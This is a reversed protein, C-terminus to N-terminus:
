TRISAGAGRERPPVPSDISEPGSCARAHSGRRGRDPRSWRTSTTSASRGACARARRRRRGRYGYFDEDVDLVYAEVTREHRLVDPEIGRLGGRAAAPRRARFARRLRRRRAAGHLARSAINATPFGLERGRRDGHVVVGEVGTRAASRAAAAAAVDGADICARMYTSSFTVSAADDTILEVGEVAFGFRPRRARHAGPRDGGGPPRLHLEARGRGRRRAPARGAGRPRVRRRSM